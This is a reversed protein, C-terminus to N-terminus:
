SYWWRGGALGQDPGAVSNRLATRAVCSFQSRTMRSLLTSPTYSFNPSPLGIETMVGLTSWSM